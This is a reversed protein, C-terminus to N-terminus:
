APASPAGPDATAWAVVDDKVLLALLITLTTFLVVTEFYFHLGLDSIMVTFYQGACMFLLTLWVGGETLSVPPAAPTSPRTETALMPLLFIFHIYYNAPYTLVPVLIMGLLAGQDMRRRRAALVVLGIYLATAAVFLPMRNRIVNAQNDEWGGILSRLAISAPHSDAALQSIKKLCDPWAAPSLVAASVAFAVAVTVGAGLLMRVTARERALLERLPPLSREKVAAQVVRLTAPLAAGAISLAPFVRIMMSMGLFAGGLAWREKKLACCGYGIYALWDHRLTAGGWNTGYMIFDNAGFVTMVILATRPGYCRWVAFFMGSLLALDLLGLLTFGLNSPPVASFLFHAITMWVPTANGGFDCLMELWHSTGMADRFWREDDKLEAWREPTFHSKIKAIRDWQQSPTSMRHSHLDRMPIDEIAERREPHDELYTAVDAEYIGRYGLERFYKATTYYQRLDLYHAFTWEDHGRSYFQPQALNYFCVVGLVGTLGLTGLIVSRFPAFRKPSFLERAVTLGAALGVTGRVLSVERPDIPLADLYASVFGYIGFAAVALALAVFGPKVGRFLLLPAMLALGFLVTADRFHADLSGSRIEPVKGPFEAPVSSFLELETLGFFGDGSRPHVRVYRGSAHLDTTSRTRLGPQHSTPALWLTSFHEGDSSIEVEYTDNNDGQLWAAAIPTVQGLDYTVYTDRGAFPVTALSKWSDGERGRRGDTLAEVRRHADSKIPQKGFLLDGDASAPRATDDGALARFSTLCLCVGLLAFVVRLVKPM